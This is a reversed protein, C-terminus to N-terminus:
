GGEVSQLQLLWPSLGIVAFGGASDNTWLTIGASDLTVLDTYGDANFDGTYVGEVGGVINTYHAAPGFQIAPAGWLTSVTLLGGITLLTGIITTKM